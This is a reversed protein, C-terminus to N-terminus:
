LHTVLGSTVVTRGAHRQELETLGACLARRSAETERGRDVFVLLGGDRVVHSWARVERFWADDITVDVAVVAALSRPEITSPDDLAPDHKANWAKAGRATLGIARVERKEALAEALKVNGVVAIPGDAHASALAEHIATVAPTLFLGELM